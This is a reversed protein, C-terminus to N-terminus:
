AEAESASETAEGDTPDFAWDATLLLRLVEFVDLNSCGSKSIVSVTGDYRLEFLCQISPHESPEITTVQSM